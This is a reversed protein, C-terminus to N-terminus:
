VAARVENANKEASSLKRVWARMPMLGHVVTEGIETASMGSKIQTSPPRSKAVTTADQEIKQTKSPGSAQSRALVPTKLMVDLAALTSLRFTKIPRM